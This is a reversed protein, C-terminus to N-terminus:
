YDINTVPICLLFTHLPIVINPSNSFIYISAGWIIIYFKLCFFVVHFNLVQLILLSMITKLFFEAVIRNFEMFLQM